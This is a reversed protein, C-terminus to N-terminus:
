FKENNIKLVSDLGIKELVWRFEQREVPGMPTVGEPAIVKKNTIVGREQLMQKLLEDSHDNYFVFYPLIQEFYIRAAREEDGSLYAEVAGGHLDLAETGTMFATVGVRLLHILHKGGAGGIVQLREGALHILDSSKQLFDTGEAKVAAITPFSEALKMIMDIDLLASSQPTDQIIIPLKTSEVVAGFLDHIEDKRPVRVYPLAVMVMDAGLREAEESYRAATRYSPATVGIFVPVRGATEEVILEVLRTRDADGIKFFESAFGFHGVAVAGSDICYRVLGRQSAEDLEGAENVATPMIPM